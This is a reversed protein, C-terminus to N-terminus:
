VLSPAPAIFRKKVAFLAIYVFVNTKIIGWDDSIEFLECVCDYKPRGCDQCYEDGVIKSNHGCDVDWDFWDDCIGCYYQEFDSMFAPRLRTIDKDM